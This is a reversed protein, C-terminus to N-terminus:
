KQSEEVKRTFGDLSGGKAHVMRHDDVRLPTINAVENKGNLSLPQIHHLDYRQGKQRIVVGNENKLDKKYTPWERGNKAEWQKILDSKNHQYEKLRQKREEPSLRKVDSLNIEANKLTSPVESYKKLDDIYHEALKKLEKKPSEIRKDPNYKTEAKESSRTEKNADIRKDPNFSKTKEISAKAAEKSIEAVGKLIEGIM